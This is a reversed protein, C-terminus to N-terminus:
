KQHRAKLTPSVKNKKKNLTKSKLVVRDCCYSILVYKYSYPPFRPFLVFFVKLLSANISNKKSWNCTHKRTSASVSVM